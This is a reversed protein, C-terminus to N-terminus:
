TPSTDPPTSTRTECRVLANSGPRKWSFAITRLGQETSIQLEAPRFVRSTALPFEVNVPTFALQLGNLQLLLGAPTPGVNLVTVTLYAAGSAIPEVPNLVFLGWRPLEARDGFLFEVRSRDSPVDKVAAGPVRMNGSFLGGLMVKLCWREVDQGNVLLACIDRPARGTSASPVRLEQVAEFLQLASADLESLATNHRACLINSALANVGLSVTETPKWPMGTVRIDSGNGVMRLIGASVYHERTM